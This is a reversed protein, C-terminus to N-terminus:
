GNGSYYDVIRFAGNEIAVVFSKSTEHEESYPAEFLAYLIDGDTMCGYYKLCYFYRTEGPEMKEAFSLCFRVLADMDCPDTEVNEMPDQTELLRHAFFLDSEMSVSWAGSGDMAMRMSVAEEGRTARVCWDVKNFHSQEEPWATWVSDDTAEFGLAPDAFLAQAAQVAELTTKIAGEMMVAVEQPQPEKLNRFSGDVYEANEWVVRPEIDLPDALAPVGMLTLCCALALALIRKQISM